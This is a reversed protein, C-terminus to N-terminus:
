LSLLGLAGFIFHPCNSPLSGLRTEVNVFMKRMIPIENELEPPYSNVFCWVYESEMENKSHTSRTKCAFRCTNRCVQRGSMVLVVDWGLVYTCNGVHEATFNHQAWSRLVLCSAGCIVLDFFFSLVHKIEGLLVCWSTHQDDSSFFLTSGYSISYCVHICYVHVYLVILSDFM